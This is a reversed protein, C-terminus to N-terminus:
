GREVGDAGTPLEPSEFERLRSVYYRIAVIARGFSEALRGVEGPADLDLDLDIDEVDGQSIREAATTLKRLPHVLRRSLALTVPLAIALGIGFSVVAARVLRARVERVYPTLDHDAEVLAVVRGDRGRVPAYASIWWGSEDHYVGTSAFSAGDFVSKMEDRLTYEQGLLPTPKATIGFRTRRGHLHLTYVDTTLDHDRQVDRLAAQLQSYAAGGVSRSEYVALLAEGDLRSSADSVAMRLDRTLHQEVEGGIRGAFDEYLFVGSIIGSLVAVGVALAFIRWSISVARLADIM